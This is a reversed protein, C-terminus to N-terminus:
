ITLGPKWWGPPPLSSPPMTAIANFCDQLVGPAPGMQHRDGCRKEHFHRAVALKQDDGYHEFMWAGERALLALATIDAAQSLLRAAVRDERQPEAKLMRINCHLDHLERSLARRLDAACDPLADCIQRLGGHLVDKEDAIIARALARAQVQKPGEWVQLVKADRLLREAQMDTTYAIGGILEVLNNAAQVASEATRWKAIATMMRGWYGNEPRDFALAAEFALASSAMWESAMDVLEEQIMPEESLPRSFPARHDMYCLAEVLIRHSIGAASMANHVRSYELAEMMIRLGQPPPAIEIAVCGNLDLEVTALGRTGLKEKLAAIKQHNPKGDVTDSVLYLGAGANGDPAGEPRALVLALNSDANSAFWKEGYLRWTGDPAKRAICTTAGANTGSHKETVWTGGTKAHGDMRILDPLYKERVEESAHKQLIYAVAGTLTVPCHTSIDSKSLLYGLVFSVKHDPKAGRYALGVGGRRYAERQAEQYAPNFVITKTKDGPVGATTLFDVAQPPAFRDSYRAQAELPGSVWAGFSSLMDPDLALDASDVFTQLNWDLDYLNLGDPSVPWRATEPRISATDSM